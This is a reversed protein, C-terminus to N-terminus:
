LYDLVELYFEQGKYYLVPNYLKKSAIGCKVADELKDLTDKSYKSPNDISYVGKKLTKYKDRVKYECTSYKINVDAIDDDHLSMITNFPLPTNTFLSLQEKTDYVLLGKCMKSCEWIKFRTNNSKVKTTSLKDNFKFKKTIFLNVAQEKDKDIGFRLVDRVHEVSDTLNCPPIIYKYKWLTDDTVLPKELGALDFLKFLQGDQVCKVLQKNDRWNPYLFDYILERVNKRMMEFHHYPETSKYCTWLATPDVGLELAAKLMETYYSRINEDYFNIAPTIGTEKIFKIMEPSTYYTIKNKLEDDNDIIDLQEDSFCIGDKSLVYKADGQYGISKVKPEAEYLLYSKGKAEPCEIYGNNLLTIKVNNQKNYIGLSFAENETEVIIKINDLILEELYSTARIVWSGDQLEEYIGGIAMDKNGTPCIKITQGVGKIHLIPQKNYISPLRYGSSIEIYHKNGDIRETKGLM